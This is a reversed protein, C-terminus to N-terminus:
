KDIYKISLNNDNSIISKGLKSELDKKTNNAVKGGVEAM